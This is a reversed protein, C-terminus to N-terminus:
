HTGQDQTLPSEQEVFGLIAQRGALKHGGSRDLYARYKAVGDEFTKAEFISGEPDGDHLLVVRDPEGESTEGDWQVALALGLPHLVRRNIEFLLGNDTLSRLSIPTM